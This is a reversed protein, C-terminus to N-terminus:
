WTFNYYYDNRGDDCYKVTFGQKEFYDKVIDTVKEYYTCKFYGKDVAQKIAKNIKEISDKAEQTVLQEARRRAETANM